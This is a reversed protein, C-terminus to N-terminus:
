AAVHTGLEKVRRQTQGNHKRRDFNTKGDAESRSIMAQTYRIKLASPLAM